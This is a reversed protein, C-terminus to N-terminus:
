LNQEIHAFFKDALSSLTNGDIGAESSELLTQAGVQEARAAHSDVQGVFQQMLQELDGGVAGDVVPMFADMMSGLFKKLVSKDEATLPNSPSAFSALTEAILETVVAGDASGDAKTPLAHEQLLSSTELRDHLESAKQQAQM